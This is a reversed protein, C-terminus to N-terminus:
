ETRKQFPENDYLTVLACTVTYGQHMAQTGPLPWVPTHGGTSGAQVPQQM